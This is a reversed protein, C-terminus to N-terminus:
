GGEGRARRMIDRLARKDALSMAEIAPPPQLIAELV